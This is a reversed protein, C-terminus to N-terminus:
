SGGPCALPIQRCSLQLVPTSYRFKVRGGVLLEWVVLRGDRGGTVVHKGDGCGCFTVITDIHGKGDMSPLFIPKSVDNKSRLQCDTSGPLWLHDHIFAPLCSQDYADAGNIEGIDMKSICKHVDRHVLEYELEPDDSPATVDWVCLRGDMGLTALLMKGKDKGYAVGRIGSSDHEKEAMEQLFRGKATVTKSSSADVVCVGAESAVALLYSRPEFALHRIPASFRPGSFSFEGPSTQSEDLQSFIDDDHSADDGKNQCAVLFPHMDGDLSEYGFIMTSGDDFGVAVRMGDSSAAVARVEDDFRRAVKSRQPTVYSICGDIGGYALVDKSGRYPFELLRRPFDEESTGLALSLPEM